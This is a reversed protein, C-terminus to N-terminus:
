NWLSLRHRTCVTLDSLSSTPQHTRGSRPTAKPVLLVVIAPPCSRDATRVSEGRPRYGEPVAFEPVARRLWPRLPFRGGSPSCCDTLRSACRPTITFVVGNADRMIDFSDATAAGLDAM